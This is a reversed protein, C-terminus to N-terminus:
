AHIEAEEVGSIKRVLNTRTLDRRALHHLRMEILNM